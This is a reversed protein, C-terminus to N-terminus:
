KSCDESEVEGSSVDAIAVIGLRQTMSQLLLNLEQLKNHRMKEIDQLETDIQALWDSAHIIIGNDNLGLDALLDSSSAKRVLNNTSKAYLSSIFFRPFGGIANSESDVSCFVNFIQQSM